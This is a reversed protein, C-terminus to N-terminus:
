TSQRKSKLSIAVQTPHYVLPKNLKNRSNGMGVKNVNKKPKSMGVDEIM